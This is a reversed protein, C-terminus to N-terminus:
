NRCAAPQTGMDNVITIPAEVWFRQSSTMWGTLRITTAQPSLHIQSADFTAVLDSQGDNDVDAVYTNAPAVGHLRLSQPDIQTVDLSASGLIAVTVTGSQGPALPASALSCGPHIVIAVQRPPYFLHKEKLTPLDVENALDRPLSANLANQTEIDDMKGTLAAWDDFGGLKV